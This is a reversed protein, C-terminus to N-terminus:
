YTQIGKGMNETLEPFYGELNHAEMGKTYGKIYLGCSKIAYKKNCLRFQRPM